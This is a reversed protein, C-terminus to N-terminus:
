VLDCACLLLCLCLPSVFIAESRQTFKKRLMKFPNEARWYIQAGKCVRQTTALLIYLLKETACEGELYDNLRLPTQTHTQTKVTIAKRASSCREALGVGHVSLQRSPLHHRLHKTMRATNRDYTLNLPFTQLLDWHFHDTCRSSVLTLSKQKARTCNSKRKEQSSLYVWTLRFLALVHLVVYKLNNLCIKKIFLSFLHLLWQFILLFCCLGNHKLQLVM